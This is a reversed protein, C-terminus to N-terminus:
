RSTLLQSQHVVKSNDYMIITHREVGGGPMITPGTWTSENPKNAPYWVLRLRLEVDDDVKYTVSAGPVLVEKVFTKGGAVVRLRNIALDGDNRIVVENQRHRELLSPYHIYAQWAALALLLLIILRTM